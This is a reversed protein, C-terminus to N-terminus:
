SPVSAWEVELIDRLETEVNGNGSSLQFGDHHSLLAPQAMLPCSIGQKRDTGM